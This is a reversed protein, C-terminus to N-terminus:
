HFPHRLQNVRKHLFEGRVDETDAVEVVIEPCRRQRFFPGYAELALPFFDVATENESPQVFALPHEGRREQQGAISGVPTELGQAGEAARAVQASDTVM